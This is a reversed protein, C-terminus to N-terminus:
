FAFYLSLIIKLQISHIREIIMYKYYKTYQEKGLNVLKRVTNVESEDLIDRTDLALLDDIADIFHNGMEQIVEILSKTHGKVNRQITLREELHFGM